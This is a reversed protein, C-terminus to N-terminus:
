LCCCCCCLHDLPLRRHKRRLLPAVPRRIDHPLGANPAAMALSAGTMSHFLSACVKPFVKTTGSTQIYYVVMGANPSGTLPGPAQPVQLVCIDIVREVAYLYSSYM